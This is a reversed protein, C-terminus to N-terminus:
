IDRKPASLSFICHCVQVTWGDYKALITSLPIQPIINKELEDHFLPPPPLELALFLFPTKSKTVALPSAFGTLISSWFGDTCNNKLFGIRGSSTDFSNDGGKAAKPDIAQSEISLEGQFTSYIISSDKKKSGGLDRHLANL